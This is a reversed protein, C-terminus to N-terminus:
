GYHSHGASASWRNGDVTVAPLEAEGEAGAVRGDGVEGIRVFGKPLRKKPAFTAVFAHDDGGSLLWILPNTGYAAAVAAIPDPIDLRESAIDITVGSSTALHGLDALLGDSVDCMAHAGATAARLGASYDVDPRRYANVLARPTGFGRSLVALGAAAWGVRGALAVQDGTKAGGRLVARRGQLSGIGTVTMALQSGASVDGGVISAGVLAAEDRLGDALRLVWAVEIDRPAVLAVVLAVPQSGMAVLDALSAAAARRGIDHADAWDTRFHVGAVLVDTTVVTPTGDIQVVAADDGPPVVVAKGQPLRKVIADILAFEGHGGLTDGSRDHDPGPAPKPNSVLCSVPYPRPGCVPPECHDRCVDQDLGLDSSGGLHSIRDRLHGSHGEGFVQDAGVVHDDTGLGVAVVLESAEDDRLHLTNRSDRASEGARHDLESDSSLEPTPQRPLKRAPERWSNPFREM